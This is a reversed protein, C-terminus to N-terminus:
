RRGPAASRIPSSGSHALPTEYDGQQQLSQGLFYAAYADDPDSQLVREFLGAATALEGRRYELLGTCYTARVDDPQRGALETFM